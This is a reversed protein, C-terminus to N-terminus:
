FAMHFTQSIDRDIDQVNGSAWGAMALKMLLGTVIMQKAQWGWKHFTAHITKHEYESGSICPGKLIRWYGHGYGKSVM